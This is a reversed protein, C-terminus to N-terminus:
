QMCALQNRLETETVDEAVKIVASRLELLVYYTCHKIAKPDNAPDNQRILKMINNELRKGATRKFTFAASGHTQQKILPQVETGELNM